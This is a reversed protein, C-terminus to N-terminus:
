LLFCLLFAMQNYFRCKITFDVSFGGWFAKKIAFFVELFGGFVGFFGGFDRISIFHMYLGMFHM